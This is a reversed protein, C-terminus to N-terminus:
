SNLFWQNKDTILLEACDESNLAGCNKESGVIGNVDLYSEFIIGVFNTDGAEYWSFGPELGAPDEYAIESCWLVVNGDGTYEPCIDPNVPDDFKFWDYKYTYSMGPIGAIFCVDPLYTYEGWLGAPHVDWEIFEGYNTVASKAKGKFLYGIARDNMPNTPYTFDGLKGLSGGSNSFQSWPHYSSNNKDVREASFVICPLFM